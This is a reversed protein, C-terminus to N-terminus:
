RRKGTRGKRKTNGKPRAGLKADKREGQHETVIPPTVFALGTPVTVYATPEMWSSPDANAPTFVGQSMLEEFMEPATLQTKPM